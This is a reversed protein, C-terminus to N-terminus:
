SLAERLREIREKLARIESPRKAFGWKELEHEADALADELYRQRRAAKRARRRCWRCEDSM